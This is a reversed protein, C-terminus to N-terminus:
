SARSVILTAVYESPRIAHNTRPVPDLARLTIRYTSYVTSAADPTTKLDRNDRAGSANLLWIRVVGEGAVICQAGQPCRSDSVVRELGVQLREADITASRGAMLKFPRDLTATIRQSQAGATHLWVLAAGLALLSHLSMM